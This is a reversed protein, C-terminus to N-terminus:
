LLRRMQEEIMRVREPRGYAENDRRLMELTSIQLTEGHYSIRALANRNYPVASPNAFSMGVVASLFLEGLGSMVWNDCREFPRITYPLLCSRVRDFDASNPFIINLNRPTVDLGWLAMAVSGHIYWDVGLAKLEPILRDLAEEWPAPLLRLQQRVATEGYQAFNAACVPFDPINDYSKLFHSGIQWWLADQFYPWHAEAVDEAVYAYCNYDRMQKVYIKM